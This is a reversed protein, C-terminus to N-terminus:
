GQETFVACAGPDDKVNDGRLVVRGNYKQFTPELEANKLHCVDM